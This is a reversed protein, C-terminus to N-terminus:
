PRRAAASLLDTLSFAGPDAGPLSPRWTPDVARYSEPDHDIIGLLVEAVIRGGLPGLRDGRGRVEAEKLLYYWLPTEGAWGLRDLGTEAAGLPEIGVARSLSEGSPLGYAQGRQLDRVALSEYPSHEVAGTIAQPLEILSRALRGDIKKSPQPAPQGPFQFLQSWDVAHSAPVPRFGLLDPFLPVTPGGAQLRYGRRIQSHGYRYAADAFEFPIWAQREPRYWRPGDALLEAMLEGGVVVPLFENVIVWQYHWTAARRASEFLEAEPEGDERLRDVLLNHVKLMALHLQSVFVHVDNRPDGVLAVGQPNRPLDGPEGRDNTGLLLKAPDDRDYLFPNGAPGDGYLCELNARPSRFNAVQGPEAHRLLLSRDATIDHALFQGFLPWGAAGRADDGGEAAGDLSADCPGGPGGLRVLFDEDADFAAVEPFLRGYKGRAGDVPADVTRSPALCHDRAITPHPAIVDM